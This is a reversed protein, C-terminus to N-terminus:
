RPDEQAVCGAVTRHEAPRFFELGIRVEAVVNREVFVEVAVVSGADPRAMLCAPRRQDSLQQLLTPLLEAPNGPLAICAYSPRGIYGLSFLSNVSHAFPQASRTENTQAATM